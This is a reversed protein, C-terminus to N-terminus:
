YPLLEFGIMYEWHSLFITDVRVAFTGRLLERPLAIYDERITGFPIAKGTMPALHRGLLIPHAIYYLLLFLLFRRQVGFAIPPIPPYM